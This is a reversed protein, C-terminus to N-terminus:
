HLLRCHEYHSEPHLLSVLLEAIFESPHERARERCEYSEAARATMIGEFASSKALSEM